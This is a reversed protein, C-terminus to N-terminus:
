SVFYFRRQKEIVSSKFTSGLYKNNNNSKLFIKKCYKSKLELGDVTCPGQDLACKIYSEALRRNALVEEIDVNDWKDTYLDSDALSLGMLSFLCLVIVTIMTFSRCNFLALIM